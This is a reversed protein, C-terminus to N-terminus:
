DWASFGMGMNGALVCATETKAPAAKGVSNLIFEVLIFGLTRAHVSPCLRRGWLKGAKRAQVQMARNSSARWPGFHGRSTLSEKEQPM